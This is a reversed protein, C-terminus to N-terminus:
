EAKATKRINKECNVVEEIYKIDRKRIDCHKDDRIGAIVVTNYFPTNKNFLKSAYQNEYKKLEEEDKIDWGFVSDYICQMTKEKNIVDYTLYEGIIDWTSAELSKDTCKLDKININGDKDLIVVRM